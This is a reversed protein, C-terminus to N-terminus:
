AYQLCGPKRLEKLWKANGISKLERKRKRVRHFLKVNKVFDFYICKYHLLPSFLLFYILATQYM